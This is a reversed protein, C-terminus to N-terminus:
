VLFFLLDYLHQSLIYLIITLLSTYLHSPYNCLRLLYMLWFVEDDSDSESSDSSESSGKKSGNTVVPM